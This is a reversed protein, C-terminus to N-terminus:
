IQFADGLSRQQGSLLLDLERLRDFNTKVGLVDEGAVHRKGLTSLVGLPRALSLQLEQDVFATPCHLM